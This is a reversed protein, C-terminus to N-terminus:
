PNHRMKVLHRYVEADVVEVFEWEEGLDYGVEGSGLGVEVHVMVVVHDSEAEERALEEVHALEAEVFVLEAEVFVLEVEEHAKAEVRVKAEVHVLGVEM